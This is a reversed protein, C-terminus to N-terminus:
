DLRSLGDSSSLSENLSRWITNFVVLKYPNLAAFPAVLHNSAFQESFEQYLAKQAQLILDPLIGVQENLNIGMPM